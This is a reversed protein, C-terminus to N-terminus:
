DDAYKFRAQLCLVFGDFVVSVFFREHSHVLRVLSKIDERMMGLDIDDDWLIFGGHRAAGLPTGCTAFYPINNGRCLSDFEALLKASGLQLLRLSGM